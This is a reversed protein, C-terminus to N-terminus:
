ARSAKQPLTAPEVEEWESEMIIYGCACEHVYAPWPDGPHQAVQTSQHAGCEPCKITGQWVIVAESM